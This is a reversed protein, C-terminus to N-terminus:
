SCVLIAPAQAMATDGKSAEGLVQRYDGARLQRLSFDHAGFHYVGAALDQMQGCVLYLEIHYLAGTCAAARFYMKGGGPM